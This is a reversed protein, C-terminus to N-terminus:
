ATTRSRCLPVQKTGNVNLTASAGADGGTWVAWVQWGKPVPITAAADTTDGTSGDVTIDVFYAASASPGVYLKCTAEKVNSSCIVSVNSATWVENSGFPGASATGNGSGDLTASATETLPLTQPM